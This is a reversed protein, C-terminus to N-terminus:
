SYNNIETKLKIKRLLYRFQPSKRSSKPPFKSDDPLVAVANSAYYKQALQAIKPVSLVTM